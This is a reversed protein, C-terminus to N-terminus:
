RLGRAGNSTGGCSWRRGEAWQEAKAVGVGGEVGSVGHGEPPLNLTMKGSVGGVGSSTILGTPAERKKKKM